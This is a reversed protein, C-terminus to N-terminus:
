SAWTRIRDPGDDNRGDTVSPVTVFGQFQCPLAQAAGQQPLLNYLFTFILSTWICAGYLQCFVQSFNWPALHSDRDPGDWGTVCAYISTACNYFGKAWDTYSLMCPCNLHFTRFYLRTMRLNSVQWLLLIPQTLEQSRYSCLSISHLKQM